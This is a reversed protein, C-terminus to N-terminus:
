STGIPPVNPCLLKVMMALGQPNKFPHPCLILSPTTAAFGQCQEKVFLQLAKLSQMGPM